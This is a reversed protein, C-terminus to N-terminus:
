TLVRQSTALLEDLCADLSGQWSPLRLGFTRALKSCDLRSNAPRKARVPYESTAIARVRVVPRGQGGLDDHM